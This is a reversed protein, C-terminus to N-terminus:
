VREEQILKSAACYAGGAANMFETRTKYKSAEKKITNYYKKVAIGLVTLKGYKKGVMKAHMLMKTFKM